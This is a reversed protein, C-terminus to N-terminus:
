NQGTVTKLYAALEDMTLIEDRKAMPPKQRATKGPWYRPAFRQNM